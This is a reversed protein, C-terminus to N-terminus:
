VVEGYHSILLKEVGTGRRGVNGWLFSPFVTVERNTM